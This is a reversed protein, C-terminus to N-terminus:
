YGRYLAEVNQKESYDKYKEDEYVRKQNTPTIDSFDSLLTFSTILLHNSTSQGKM